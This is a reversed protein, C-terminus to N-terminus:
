NFHKIAVEAPEPTGKPRISHISGGEDGLWRPIIHVHMHPVDRAIEDNVGLLFGDPKITDVVLQTVKQVSRFLNAVVEPELDLITDGHAKPVVMTHGTAIPHIDLFAYAHEDEYVKYSPIEGAIIKCFLCNKMNYEDNRPALM